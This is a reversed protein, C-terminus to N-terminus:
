AAKRELATLKNNAYQVVKTTMDRDLISILRWLFTVKAKDTFSKFLNISRDFSQSNYTNFVEPVGELLSREYALETKLQNNADALYEANKALKHLNKRSNKVYLLFTLAMAVVIIALAITPTNQM